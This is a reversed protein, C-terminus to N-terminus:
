KGSKLKRQNNKRGKKARIIGAPIGSVLVDDPVDSIVYSFPAIKVGNGIRVPGAIAARGAISVNDGIWPLGPGAGIDLDSNLKGIGSQAYVICNEGLRGVIITGASHVLLFRKGIDSIPNIDAGTLFLSTNWIIRSIMSRKKLYFYRSLRYLAVALVNPLLLIKMTRLFSLKEVPPRIYEAYRQVDSYILSFTASISMSGHDPMDSNSQTNLSISSNMSKGPKVNRSRYDGKKAHDVIQTGGKITKNSPIVASGGVVARSELIVNDGIDPCSRGIKFVGSQMGITANCGINGSLFSFVASEMYLGSGIKSEYDISAKTLFSNLSQLCRAM